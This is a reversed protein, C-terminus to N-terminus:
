ESQRNAKGPAGLRTRRLFFAGYRSPRLPFAQRERLCRMPSLACYLLCMTWGSLVCRLAPRLTHGLVSAYFFYGTLGTCLGTAVYLCRASGYRIGYGLGISSLAVGLTLVDTWAHAIGYHRVMAVLSQLAYLIGLFIVVNAAKSVRAEAAAEAM